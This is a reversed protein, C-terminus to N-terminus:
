TRLPEHEYTTRGKKKTAGDHSLTQQASRSARDTDYRLWKDSMTGCGDVGSRTLTALCLETEGPVLPRESVAPDLLRDRAAAQPVRMNMLQSMLQAIDGACGVPGEAGVAVPHTCGPGSAAVM